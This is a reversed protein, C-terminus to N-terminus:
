RGLVVRLGYMEEHGNTPAGLRASSRCYRAGGYFFGLRMVRMEGAPSEWASGDEPAGIYSDHYWDQVWENANGHMDHLGWANPLKLGVEKVGYPTNNVSYWCYDKLLNEDEGFHWRTTTGARCAYEWEAESPLRFTFGEPKEPTENLAQVFQQCDYWSLQCVPYNAGVQSQGGPISPMLAQWQAQTVEYKGLYFPQAISVQHQPYEQPLANIEGPYAGMMFTGPLILTMDLPVDGPLMVTIEKEWAYVNVRIGAATIHEGPYDIYANWTITKGIGPEVIGFDGTISSIGYRYTTGGDKSLLLWVICKKGEAQELDYTVDVYNGRVTVQVNSVVPETPNDATAPISHFFVFLVVFVLTAITVFRM